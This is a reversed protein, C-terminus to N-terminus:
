WPAGKPTGPAILRDGARQLLSESHSDPWYANRIRELHALAGIPGAANRAHAAFSWARSLEGQVIRKLDRDPSGTSQLLGVPPLALFDHLIAWPKEPHMRLVRGRRQIWEREVTSSAVLFAERVSPIDVGEDLVKKAALAQYGGDAFTTLTENLRRTSSSTDETVPAWRMGMNGLLKGIGTFQEPNKASAYVLAHRIHMPERRRIVAELLPLKARATEIIRRRRILLSTLASDDDGDDTDALFAVRRIRETLLEFEDLEDSDLTAVHVYYDYPALCFGIARDLGFEYIPSGFFEFIAETGDPDYQREPTASLALRRELFEPRNALFSAAGLTHAEDGVLLTAVPRTLSSTASELTNQFAGTCLLNNTVIAVHTGGAGLSRLLKTMAKDTDRAVTPTVAEIGFERVVRQWQLILPVSPASIVVLLPAGNIREQVRAACILATYTKGAGTAMSITGREPESTSEWAAVAEGQHAYDGTQWELWDPIQLKPRERSSRGTVFRARLRDIPETAWPPSSDQAVARAYDDPSPAIDPATKIIGEKLADPLDVVRELGASRGQSWDDLMAAGTRVRQRGNEAWTADVDMHEVAAGLGRGTANASGRVLVQHEDDDFLWIKPHYNSERTPVAVRLRLQDTFLMWALCDLTHRSLASADVRGDMFVEAIRRSAEQPSLRQAQEAAGLEGAFFVPSVTCEIPAARQRNLYEALGPALLAIWGATFWGFAGRVRIAARFGPILIRPGIPEEPLRYLGPLLTPEDHLM